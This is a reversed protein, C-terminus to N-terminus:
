YKCLAKCKSMKLRLNTEMGISSTNHTRLVFVDFMFQKIVSLQAAKVRTIMLESFLNM